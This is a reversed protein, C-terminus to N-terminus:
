SSAGGAASSGLRGTPRSHLLTGFDLDVIPDLQSFTAAVAQAEIATSRRTQLAGTM